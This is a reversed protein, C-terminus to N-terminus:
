QSPLWYYYWGGREIEWDQKLGVEVRALLDTQKKGERGRMAEVQLRALGFLEAASHTSCWREGVIAKLVVTCRCERNEM